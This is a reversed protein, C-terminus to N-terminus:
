TGSRATTGTRQLIFLGAGTRDTACALGRDDLDVDNVQIAVERGKEAPRSTQNPKPVYYGVERPNYPDSLDVLRVGAHFYAVWALKDEFRNLRGNVTEAASAARLTGRTAGVAVAVRQLRMM